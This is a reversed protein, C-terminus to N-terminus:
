VKEDLECYHYFLKFGYFTVLGAVILIPISVHEKYLYWSYSEKEMNAFALAVGNNIFHVIASPIISDSKWSMVGLVIGFVLVQISWWPNFHVVAFILSTAMVAKTIDFTNEFGTQVFGRFMMEEVFAALFVASFGIIILDSLSNIQISKQIAEALPEPLPFFIQVIRDIEDSVITFALGIALSAAVVRWNVWKLRFLRIISYNNRIIFITAPLVILGELLFLEKRQGFIASLFGISSTVILTFLIVITVERLQPYDDRHPATNM